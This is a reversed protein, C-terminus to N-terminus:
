RGAKLWSGTLLLVCREDASILGRQVLRRYGAAAVASTPEVYLGQAALEAQAPLIEEEPVAETAGGSERLARLAEALRIPRSSAIGEALTPRQEAPSWPEGRFAADLPRCNAVQVAFLRPLRAIEGALRLSQFARYAGLLASGYGAPVIVSDPAQWGLQEWVELAWTKVGEVFAPQRNHSAYVATQAAELAAEAVQQRAGPVKVVRAHHAAIQALKGESASAPVYITCGIGARAAYAALSAGANGSSDEIVETVGQRVLAAVMVVTGRDKFSGSPMLFDLKALLRREGRRLSVLPTLGEGLTLDRPVEHVPLTARYRWLSPETHDVQDRAFPRPPRLEWPGGCACAFRRSDLPARAGCDACELFSEPQTVSGGKAM